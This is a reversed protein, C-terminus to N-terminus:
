DTSACQESGAYKDALYNAVRSEGVPGVNFHQFVYMAAGLMQIEPDSIDALPVLLKVPGGGVEDPKHMAEVCDVVWEVQSAVSSGASLKDAVRKSMYKVVEMQMPVEIADQVCERCQPMGLCRARVGDDRPVVVGHRNM